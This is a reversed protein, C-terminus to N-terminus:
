KTRSRSAATDEAIEDFSLGREAHIAERRTFAQWRRIAVDALRPEIELARAHRGVREAAIITSGWGSFVDLVVDGKRTCDKIADAILAVPKPPSRLVNMSGSGFSNAGGYRWVNSRPRRHRSLKLDLHPPKEVRFMGIFEHQNGYFSGESATSKV